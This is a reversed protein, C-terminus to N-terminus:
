EDEQVGKLLLVVGFGVLILPWFRQWRFYPMWNNILFLSGLAILIIGITKQGKDGVESKDITSGNGGYTDEDDINKSEYDASKYETDEDVDSSYGDVDIADDQYSTKSDSYPEEPIIIWAAIYVFLGIGEAFFLLVAALRVLTSDVGFYNAIGGCVGGIMRDKRSRYIKEKPM